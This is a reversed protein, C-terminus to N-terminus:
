KVDKNLRAERRQMMRKFFEKGERTRGDYSRKKKRQKDALVDAPMSVGGGAVSNAPADEWMKKADEKTM